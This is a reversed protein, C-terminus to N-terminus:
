SLMGSLKGAIYNDLDDQTFEATPPYDLTNVVKANFYITLRKGILVNNSDRVEDFSASIM